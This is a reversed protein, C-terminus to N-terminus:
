PPKWSDGMFLQRRTSPDSFNAALCIASFIRETFYTHSKDFTQHIAFPPKKEKGRNIKRLFISGQLIGWFIQAAGYPFIRTWKIDVTIPERVFSGIEDKACLNRPYIV